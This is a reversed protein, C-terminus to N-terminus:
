GLRRALRLRARGRDGGDAAAGSAGGTGQANGDGTTKPASATDTSLEVQYEDALMNERRLDALIEEFDRGNEAALRTRSDLGARIALMAATLDKEPDVWQWGRPLWQHDFWAGVAATPLELAGATLAWKLWERYVRRHLQAAVWTQLRRWVDREMLLGARISSYNVSELDNTLSNYSVGMGSAISRLVTKLFAGFSSNPHQPDWAAFSYGPPLIEMRGPDAEMTVPERSAAQTPDAVASEPDQQFFGMKAAATRAAVLEAEQYGALMRMDSMIPALWTVGRTQGPRRVLYLHIIEDASVQDRTRRGPESPHQSWLWYAVPRGWENIEVGKRIENIGTGRSRNLTTDIMDPDLVQVAFAFENRFRPVMRILAEGDQALTRVALQEVDVWSLRGDVTATGPEAWREWAAEIAANVNTDFEGAANRVRAQLRIGAPGVVNDAVLDVFHAAFANNRVLERARGVLRDRDGGLEQDASELPALIWDSTLRNGLAGAYASRTEVPKRFWGRARDFM